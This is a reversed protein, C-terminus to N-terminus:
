SDIEKVIGRAVRAVIHITYPSSATRTFVSKGFNFAFILILFCYVIDTRRPAFDAFEGVLM